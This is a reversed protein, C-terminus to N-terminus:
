TEWGGLVEDVVYVELDKKVKQNKLRCTYFLAMCSGYMIYVHM